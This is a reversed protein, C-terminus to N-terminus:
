HLHIAMASACNVVFVPPIVLKPGWALLAHLGKCVFHARAFDLRLEPNATDSRVEVGRKYTLNSPTLILFASSMSWIKAGSL